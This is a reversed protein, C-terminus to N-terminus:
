EGHEVVPGPEARTGDEPPAEDLLQEIAQYKAKVRECRFSHPGEPGETMDVLSADVVGIVEQAGDPREHIVLAEDHGTPKPAQKEQKAMKRGGKM